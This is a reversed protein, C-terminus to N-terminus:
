VKSTQNASLMADGGEDASELLENARRGDLNVGFNRELEKLRKM